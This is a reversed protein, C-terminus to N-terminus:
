GTMGDVPSSDRLRSHENPHHEAKSREEELREIMLADILRQEEAGPNQDGAEDLGFCNGAL